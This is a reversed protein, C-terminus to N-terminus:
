ALIYSAGSIALSQGSVYSADDSVLFAVVGAVEEPEAIRGIGLEKGRAAKQEDTM